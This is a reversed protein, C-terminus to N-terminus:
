RAEPGALIRNLLSDIEDFVGDAVLQHRIQKRARQFGLDPPLEVNSSLSECREGLSALAAHESVSPDFAPIPPYWVYKDFHRAGFAGRAQYPAVIRGLAPANLISTLYRAEDLSGAAGWYLLHDIIATPDTVIAATLYTGAKTYVVRIDPIPFQATLQKIYDIQEILERKDSSRNEVWIQEARRWWAALGPYLDIRDDAGELLSKGDYPIVAQLPSLMRFPLCHEGLFARRVFIKEVAGTHDPLSRWPEKDLRGRRSRVAVQTMPQLPGPQEEEVMVLM